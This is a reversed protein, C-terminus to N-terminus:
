GCSDLSSNAPISDCEVTINAPPNNPLSPPTEDDINIIQNASGVNNCFDKAYFTRTIVMPCNGSKVDKYSIVLNGNSNDTANGGLAQLQALTIVVETTSFLLGTMANENCGEINLNAPATVIPPVTDGGSVIYSATKTCGIADKVTVTYTGAGLNSIDQTTAGNSWTYTYPSTGGSVSLDIAGTSGGTCSLNTVNATLLIESPFVIPLLYSNVLGQSDRVTLKATYSGTNNYTFTPNALTSDVIGDNQFDWQYTYPPIGGNTTSTFQITSNTGNTCGKYTFQVALPKSIVMNPSFDCQSNSFSQCTYNPGPDQNQSTRWAVLINTLLLEQGCTWNFPGYLRRQGSGPTVTGLYVNLPTVVGDISLDAFFRTFYINSNANSTYNMLIYVQQTSGITCTSNTIPVGYVDTVSLFVDTLTYNNSTCNYGCTRLDLQAYSKPSLCFCLLILNVLLLKKGSFLLHTNSKM